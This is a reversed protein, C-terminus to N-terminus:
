AVEATFASRLQGFAQAMADHGSSSFGEGAAIPARRRQTIEVRVHFRKGATAARSETVTVACEGADGVLRSAGLRLREAARLLALDPSTERFRVHLGYV